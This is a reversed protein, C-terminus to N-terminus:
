FRVIIPGYPGERTYRSGGGGGGGSPAPTGGGGGKAGGGGGGKLKDIIPSALSAAAPVLSSLFGVGDLGYEHEVAEGVVAPPAGRLLDHLARLRAEDLVDLGAHPAVDLAGCVAGVVSVPRRRSSWVSSLAAPQGAMPVDLRSAWGGRWPLSALMMRRSMPAWVAASAGDAGVAGMGAWRSPDEITGDSRRVVAHWRGPGSPRVVARAEPDVGTARLSACHWPALDDCDAWGRANAVSALDFHEDGPPEPRWRVGRKIAQVATPVAGSAIAPENARTVAELAADLAHAADGRSLSDPVALRIRM